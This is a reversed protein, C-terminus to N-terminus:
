FSRNFAAAIQEAFLNIGEELQKNLLMKYMINLDAKLTIKLRTDYPAIEKLQFWIYFEFPKSNEGTIKLTTFPERNVIRLGMQGIGKVNFRCSDTDAEWGDIKDVPIHPTLLTFDSLVRFIDEARRNITVIKSEYTTM